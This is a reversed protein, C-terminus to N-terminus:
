RLGTRGTVGIPISSTTSLFTGDIPYSTASLTVSGRVAPKWTCTAVLATTSVKICGPIRKGNATFTVKGDGGASAITATITVQGRYSPTSNVTLSSFSAQEIVLSFPIVQLQRGDAGLLVVTSNSNITAISILGTNLGSAQSFSVGRNLSYYLNATSSTQGILIVSGNSNISLGSSYGLGIGTLNSWTAGWDKSIIPPYTSDVTAILISGDASCKIDKYFRPTTATTASWSTGGNTSIFVKSNLYDCVAAIKNGDATMAIQSYQSTAPCNSSAQSLAFTSGSNNSIHIGSTNYSIAVRTGDSNTACGTITIASAPLTGGSLATWSAGRNTSKWLRTTIGGVYIVNGDGSVAV